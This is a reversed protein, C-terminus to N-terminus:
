HMAWFVAAWILAILVSVIGLREVVSLRLISPAIAAPPHAHGPPHHHHHLHDHSMVAPGAASISAKNYYLM